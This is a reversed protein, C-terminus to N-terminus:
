NVKGLELFSRRIKGRVPFPRGPNDKVVSHFIAAPLLCTAQVGNGTKLRAHDTEGIPLQL